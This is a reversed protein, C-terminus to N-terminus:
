HRVLSPARAFDTVPRALQARCAQLIAVECPKSRIEPRSVEEMAAVLALLWRRGGDGDRWQELRQGM